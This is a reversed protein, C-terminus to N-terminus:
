KLCKRAQSIQKWTAGSELAMALAKVKGHEAVFARITPCDYAPPLKPDAAHALAAACVVVLAILGAVLFTRLDDRNM